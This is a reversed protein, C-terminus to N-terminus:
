KPPLSGPLGPHIAFIRLSESTNQPSLGRSHPPPRPLIHVFGASTVTVFM